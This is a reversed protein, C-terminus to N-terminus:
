PQSARTTSSRIRVTRELEDRAQLVKQRLDPALRPKSALWGDIEALAEASQQGGIVAGLWSGLFFIRRNQQIWPLTDLSAVVYTRSLESQEVDHFARLSSTVWEENLSADGFWRTFLARKTASDPRAAQAVFAQRRGETTSDRRMEAALRGEASPSSRSTLRTIIAWRTPPRLPLGLASDADLWGDLRRLALSDRALGIAADLFTKRPGYARGTDAASALLLTETRPLLSDRAVTSVYRTLATSVRGVLASSIQEDREGPLARLAMAVYREPALRTERVLDWLAGWLMARLLDDRVTGVHQELWAVSRADPLALAYGFDGDNAFVFDPAPKGRAAAVEANTSRFEFPLREMTGDPYALLLQVKIPWAGRGSLAPQAPRQSLVLRTIRGDRVSLSQEIIPMGPRLIWQAGWARLDRGSASGVAQLLERWTANGYPYARLFQQIGRQFAREGVLYDLQRLISPAKNYVIPGYNSKAQDLNALQQWVPTTGATADTNYAVPKNRLYFTKWANANPELAAQMKAAMYTAFGEKLWLDDFWAMTFYDGFWQHAVEHFATAQRGLLQSTTPRERYIFSEENYFVAGPHEMGGFPFAPALLFDYKGFAYPVGFWDGLWRLARANMAILSDSEAEKARSARVWMSVPAPAAGERIAVARTIVQWPGAAFAILYTSLPATAAFHHVVGAATTDVQQLAGNALVRWALATTAAFRVRAKLDPQDFCPFLLNADSPVLLTYLYEQNDTADRTRIISAGAPAIPSRFAVTIRNVGAIVFSRDIILHARNWVAATLPIPRGNAIVTDVAYGRFDLVIDDRQITRVSIQVRGYATDRALLNLSLDYGVDRLQAARHRALERSVGPAIFRATAPRVVRAAARKAGTPQAALRASCCVLAGACLLLRTTLPTTM